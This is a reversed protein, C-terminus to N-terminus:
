STVFAVGDFTEAGYGTFEVDFKRGSECYLGFAAVIFKEQEALIVLRETSSPEDEGTKALQKKAWAPAEDGMAGVMEELTERDWGQDHSKKGIPEVRLISAADSTDSYEISLVSAIPVLGTPRRRASNLM